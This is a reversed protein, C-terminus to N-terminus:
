QVSEAIAVAQELDSVGELRLTVGSRQWILSPGSQRATHTREVGSPDVVVIPHPEKLWVAELGNVTTFQVDEFVKKVYYPDPSGAIQDLQVLPWAVGDAPGGDSWQLVVVRRDDSVGVRDPDGLAAPVGVGFTVMSRAQSLSVETTGAPLGMPVSPGASPEAPPDPAEDQVVVVAGFGLWARIGAGAPSAVFVALLVTALVAVALRWRALLRRGTDNIAALLRQWSSGSPAPENALRAMVVDVTDGAPPPIVLSQGLGRVQAAMEARTPSLETM